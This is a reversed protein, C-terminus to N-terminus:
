MWFNQQARRVVNFFKLLARQAVSCLSIPAKMALFIPWAPDADKGKGVGPMWMSYTGINGKRCRMEQMLSDKSEEDQAAHIASQYAWDPTRDVNQLTEQGTEKHVSCVLWNTGGSVTSQDLVEWLSEM